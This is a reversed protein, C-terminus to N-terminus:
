KPAVTVSTGLTHSHWDLAQAAYYRESPVTVPTEFNSRRVTTLTRLSKVSGGGLIRWSKVETAGNWSAYATTGASNRIVALAPKTQPFGEWRDRFVRYSSNAGAMRADFLLQGHVNYESMYPQQGWGIFEDWNPLQEDDGEYKSLLPPSHQDQVIETATRTKMDLRLKLGRSSSHVDPPGAGDDFITIVADDQARVRVHHQFAFSAGPGLKFTSHKGGLTWMVAGTAHNVKYAAWTNRGSVILNGDDDEQVSNVHFYNYPNRATKPPAQYSDTLPVHDLSDWQFLVLGTPIDIEQVVSDFV